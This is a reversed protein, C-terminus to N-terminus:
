KYKKLWGGYKQKDGQSMASKLAGLTFGAPLLGWAKHQDILKQWDSVPYKQAKEIIDKPVIFETEPHISMKEHYELPKNSITSEPGHPEFNKISYSEAQSKPVQLHLIESEPGKDDIYFKLRNPDKEFWQGWFKDRDMLRKRQSPNNLIIKQAPSLRGEAAAKEMEAVTNSNIDFGKPQVRYLSVLEEEAKTKYPDLGFSKLIEQEKTLPTVETLYPANEPTLPVTKRTRAPGQWTSPYKIKEVSSYPDHPAVNSEIYQPSVKVPKYGQLWNRKYVNFNSLNNYEPRLVFTKTEEEPKLYKDMYRPLLSEKSVNGEFLYEADSNATKKFGKGTAKRNIPFFLEDKSFFPAPSPKKFYIGKANIAQNYEDLYDIDPHNELFEKQGKDFIKGEAIANDYGAKGVQRYMMGKQPKFAWPNIKYTNQIAKTVYPSATKAIGTILPVAADVDMAYQLMNSEPTGTYNHQPDSLSNIAKIPYTVMDGVIGLLQNEPHFPNKPVLDQADFTRIKKRIPNETRELEAIEQATMTRPVGDQPRRPVPVTVGQVPIQSISAQQNPSWNGGDQYQNLWGGYEKKEAAKIKSEQELMEKTPKKGSGANARINDWLGRQSYSGDARKIMGGDKYKTVDEYVGTSLKHLRNNRIYDEQEKPTEFEIQEDSYDKLNPNVNRLTISYDSLKPTYSPALVQQPQYPQSNGKTILQDTPLKPTNPIYDGIRDGIFKARRIADLYYDHAKKASSPDKQYVIPQIPEQYEYNKWIPYNENIFDKSFTNKFEPKTKTPNYRGTSKSSLLLKGIEKLKDEGTFVSDIPKINPNYIDTMVNDLYHRSTKTRPDFITYDSKDLKGDQVITYQKQTGDKLPETVLTDRFHKGVNRYYVDKDKGLQYVYNELNVAKTKAKDNKYKNDDFLYYPISDNKRRLEMYKERSIEPYGPNYKRKAQNYFDLSDNYAQLRPDNLSNVYIPPLGGKQMVPVEFVRNGPFQYEGGPQMMQKNGFNDIGLVPHPVNQMTIRGSPIINYPNNRDPSDAKYGTTSIKGGSQKIGILRKIPNTYSTDVPMEQQYTPYNKPDILSRVYADVGGEEEVHKGYKKVLEKKLKASQKNYEPLKHLSHSLFDNAVLNEIDQRNKGATDVVTTYQGPYPNTITVPNAPTGEIWMKNAPIPVGAKTTYAGEEPGIYEPNHHYKRITELDQGSPYTVHFSSEPAVQNLIPYKEFVSRKISDPSKDTKGGQQYKKLWGM